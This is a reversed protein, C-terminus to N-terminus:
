FSGERHAKLVFYKKKCFFCFLFFCHWNKCTLDGLQGGLLWTAGTMQVYILLSTDYQPTQTFFEHNYFYIIISLYFHFSFPVTKNVNMSLMIVRRCVKM